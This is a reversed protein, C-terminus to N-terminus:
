AIKVETVYYFVKLATPLINNVQVDTGTKLTRIFTVNYYRNQLFSNKGFDFTMPVLPKCHITLLFLIFFLDRASANLHVDFLNQRQLFILKISIPFLVYSATTIDSKKKLASNKKRKM